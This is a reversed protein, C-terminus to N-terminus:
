AHDFNRKQAGDWEIGIDDGATVLTAGDHDVLRLRDGGLRVGGDGRRERLLEM